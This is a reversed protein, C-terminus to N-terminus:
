GLALIQAILLETLQEIAANVAAEASDAESRNASRLRAAQDSWIRHLNESARLVDESLLRALTQLSIVSSWGRHWSESDQSYRQLFLDRQLTASIRVMEFAAERVNRQAETTENRWSNYGLSTIAIFLSILAVANRRLQEAFAKGILPKM